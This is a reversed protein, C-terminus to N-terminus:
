KFDIIIVLEKKLQYFKKLMLSKKIFIVQVKLCKINVFCMHQLSYNLCYYFLEILNNLINKKFFNILYINKSIYIQNIFNLKKLRFLIVGYPSNEFTNLKM